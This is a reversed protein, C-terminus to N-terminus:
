FLFNLIFFTKVNKRAIAIINPIEPQPFFSYITKGKEDKTKFFVNKFGLDQIKALIEKHKIKHFISHGNEDFNKLAFHFHLTTEDQHLVLYKLDSNLQRALDNACNNAVRSLEEITYKNGLDHKIAESFTFVGEMWSAQQTTLNRQRRKYVKENHEKRDNNYFNKTTNYFRDYAQSPIQIFIYALAVIITQLLVFNGYIEKEVNYSNNSM